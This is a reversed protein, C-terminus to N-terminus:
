SPATLARRERSHSIEFQDFSKPVALMRWFAYVVPSRIVFM